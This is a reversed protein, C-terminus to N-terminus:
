FVMNSHLIPVHLVQAQIWTKKTKKTVLVLLSSKVCFAAQHHMFFRIEFKFGMKSM